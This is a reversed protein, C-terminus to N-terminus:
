FKTFVFILLSGWAFGRSLEVITNAWTKNPYYTIMYNLWIALGTAILAFVIGAVFIQLLSVGVLGAIVLSALILCHRFFTGVIQKVNKPTMTGGFLSWGPSRWIIWGLSILGAPWGAILVSLAVLPLFVWYIPRGPFNSQWGLGGGCWRDALMFIIPLAFM